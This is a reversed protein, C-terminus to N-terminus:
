WRNKIEFLLRFSLNDKNKLSFEYVQYEGSVTGEHREYRDNNYQTELYSVGMRYGTVGDPKDPLLELPYYIYMEPSNMTFSGSLYYADPGTEKYNYSSHEWASISVDDEDIAITYESVDVGPVSYYIDGYQGISLEYETIEGKRIDMADLIYMAHTYITKDFYTGLSCNDAAAESEHKTILLETKSHFVISDKTHLTFDDLSVDDVIKVYARLAHKTLLEELNTGDYYDHFFNYQMNFEKGPITVSRGAEIYVDYVQVQFYENLYEQFANRIEEAQYNDIVKETTSKSGDAVVIFTEDKYELTVVTEPIYKSPPVVSDNNNSKSDIVEPTFGYKEEIYQIALEKAQERWKTADQENEEDRMCGTLCMGTFLVLLILIIHKRCIM